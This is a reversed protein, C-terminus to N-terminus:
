SSNLLIIKYDNGTYLLDSSGKVEIIMSGVDTELHLNEISCIVELIRGNLRM